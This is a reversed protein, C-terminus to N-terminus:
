LSAPRICDIGQMLAEAVQFGLIGDIDVAYRQDTILPLVKKGTMSGELVTSVRVVDLGGTQWWVVPLEQRPHNFPEPIGPVDLLPMM